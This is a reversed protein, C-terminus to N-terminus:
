WSIVEDQFLVISIPITFTLTRFIGAKQFNYRPVRMQRQFAWILAGSLLWACPFVLSEQLWEHKTMEYQIENRIPRQDSLAM